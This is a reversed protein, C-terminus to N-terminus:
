RDPPSPCLDEFAHMKCNHGTHITCQRLNALAPAGEPNNNNMYKVKLLHIPCYQGM